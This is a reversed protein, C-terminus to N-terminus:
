LMYCIALKTWFSYILQENAILAMKISKEVM